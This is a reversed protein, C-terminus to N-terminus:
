APVGDVGGHRRKRRQVDHSRLHRASSPVAKELVRCSGNTPKLLGLLLKITTTKGSGNLGILGFIEGSRVTLNLDDVGLTVTKSGLHSKKYYKSLNKLEIANKM